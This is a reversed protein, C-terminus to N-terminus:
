RLERILLHYAENIAAMRETALQRVEETRLELRDPHWQSVMKRYAAKIQKRTSTATEGLMRRALEQTMPLIAGSGDDHEEALREWENWAQEQARATPEESSQLAKGANSYGAVASLSAASAFETHLRIEKVFSPDDVSDSERFVDGSREPQGQRRQKFSEAAVATGFTWSDVFFRVDPESNEGMLQQFKDVFQWVRRPRNPEIAPAAEYSEPTTACSGPGVQFQGEM